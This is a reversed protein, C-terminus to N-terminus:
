ITEKIIEANGGAAAYDNWFEPYSKGVSEGGTLGVPQKCVLAAVAMSMAIRHDNWADVTVGGQLGGPKGKVLLGEPEETIEAGLKTLESYMAALRDCEKIRLRGAHIIHTTGEAVAAAVSLVPVLDPCDAADIECGRLRSLKSIFSGESEAIDAGMRRLIALVAKDGQLSGADLGRCCIGEGSGIAGAVLWFAAQSWDGEVQVVSGPARYRQRGPIKYQLDSVKDITIGFQRISSLTLNIYSASELPPLITLTSDKELLPLAFLLGSIFQSSVDGPVVYEGPLLRGAVTLPLRGNEGTRYRLQQKTFIDYYPQLPRSVLKGQGTFTVPVNCLAGLPIFFRLTSGSEGCDLLAAEAPFEQNWKYQFATRGKHLSVTEEVSVGLAELCRNTAEIDKSVAINDVICGEASLGASICMRHGMSKSSPILVEGHLTKQSIRYTTM